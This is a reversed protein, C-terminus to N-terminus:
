PVSCNNIKTKRSGNSITASVQPLFGGLAKLKESKVEFNNGKASKIFNELTLAFSNTISIQSVIFTITLIRRIM